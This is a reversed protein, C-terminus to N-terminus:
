SKPDKVIRPRSPNTGKESETRVKIEAKRLIKKTNRDVSSAKSVQNQTGTKGGDGNDSVPKRVNKLSRKKAPGVDNTRGAQPLADQKTITKSAATDNASSYSSVIDEGFLFVAILAAVGSGIVLSRYPVAFRTRSSPYYASFMSERPDLDFTKRQTREGLLTPFFTREDLMRPSFGEDRLFNRPVPSENWDIRIRRGHPTVVTIEEPEVPVIPIETLQDSSFSEPVNEVSTINREPRYCGIKVPVSHAPGIEESETQLTPMMTIQESSLVEPVEAVSSLDDDSQNREIMAGQRSVPYVPINEPQAQYATTEESVAQVKFPMLPAAEAVTFTRYEAIETSSSATTPHLKKMRMRLRSLRSTHSVKKQKVFNEIAAEGSLLDPSAILDDASGALDIFGISENEAKSIADPEYKINESYTVNRTELMAAPELVFPRTPAAAVTRPTAPPVVGAPPPTSVHTALQEIHRLQRAFANASSQRREPRKQLSEMLTHTLLMRLDFNDIRIEPPRQNKHKDILAAAKDAEFPPVGALMEYLVVGLSYLDAKMSVPDGSCQEPAFYKLSNISSDIFSKNYVISREMVGGFDPDKIRVLLRHEVDTTLIINEPTIARHMLGNVHIFHLAEATQRVVQISTLLNPVGVNNLLDRLSKGDPEEAAVFVEGSELSGAEYVDVVNPHFLSAVLRAERLFQQSDKGNVSLIKILSSRGSGTQSARYIDGNLFSELLYDLRFGPVLERSGYRTESLVPHNAETCSVVSDDYCRHCLSCVIM